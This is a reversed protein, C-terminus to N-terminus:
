EAPLPEAPAAEGEAAPAENAVDPAVAQAEAYVQGEAAPAVPAAAKVAKETLLAVVKAKDSIPFVWRFGPEKAEQAMKSRLKVRAGQPKINLEKCIEALTITDPAKEVAAEASGETSAGTPEHSTTIESADSADTTSAALGASTKQATTTNTKSMIKNRQTQNLIETKQEASLENYGIAQRNYISMVADSLKKKKVVTEYVLDDMTNPAILYYYKIVPTNVLVIRDKFQEWKLYSHNMSFIVMVSYHALNIAEGASPNLLTVFSRDDPDYQHKGRIQVYSIGRGALGQSIADMEAKYQAVIVLPTGKLEGDMLEWLTNMKDEHIVQVNGDNDKVFGGCLQHLKIAKILVQPATAISDEFKLFLNDTLDRYAEKFADSPPVLIRRTRVMTKVTSVEDRTVRFSIGDLIEKFKEQNKYGTIKNIAEEMNQYWVPEMILYSNSFSKWTTFLDPRIFRLQSYYDEMGNGQPSGSLILRKRAYKGVKWIAQTQQSGREKMRHSEDVIVLDWYDMYDAKHIRFSEFSVISFDGLNQALDTIANKWVPLAKKPCIILTKQCDWVERLWLSVFTKGTRQQMFLAFGDHPKAAAIAKLQYDRPSLM